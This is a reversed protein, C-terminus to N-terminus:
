SVCFTPRPGEASFDTAFTQSATWIFEVRYWLQRQLLILTAIQTPFFRHSLAFFGFSIVGILFGVLPFFLMSPALREKKCLFHKPFPIVTLFKLAQFFHDVM